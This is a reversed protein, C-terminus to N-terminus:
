FRSFSPLASLQMGDGRNRVAAVEGDLFWKDRYDGTCDDFFVTEWEGDLGAAYAAEDESIQQNTM